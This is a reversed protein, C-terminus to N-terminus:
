ATRFQHLIEGIHVPGQIPGPRQGLGVAAMEAKLRGANIGTGSAYINWPKDAGDGGAIEVARGHGDQLLVDEATAAGPDTRRIDQALASAHTVNVAVSRKGDAQQLAMGRIM